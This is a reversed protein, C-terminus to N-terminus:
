GMMRRRVPSRGRRSLAPKMLIYFEPTPHSWRSDCSMSLASTGTGDYAVDFLREKGSSPGEENGKGEWPIGIQETVNQLAKIRLYAPNPVLRIRPVPDSPSPSHRRGKGKRTLQQRFPSKIDLASRCTAGRAIAHKQQACRQFPSPQPGIQPQFVTSYPLPFPLITRARTTIRSRDTLPISPPEFSTCLTAAVAFPKLEAPETFHRVDSPRARYGSPLLMAKASACHLRETPPLETSLGVSHRSGAVINVSNMYSRQFGKALQVVHCLQRMLSGREATKGNESGGSPLLLKPRPGHLPAEELPVPVLTSFGPRCLAPRPSVTNSASVIFSEDKFGLKSRPSSPPVTIHTTVSARSSGSTFSFWSNRSSRGSDSSTTLQSSDPSTCAGCSDDITGSSTFLISRDNDRRPPLLRLNERERQRRRGVSSYEVATLLVSLPNQRKQSPSMHSPRNDSSNSRSSQMAMNEEASLPFLSGDMTKLVERFTIFHDFTPPGDMHSCSSDRSSRPSRPRSRAAKSHPTPTFSSKRCPMPLSDYLLSDPSENQRMPPQSAPLSAYSIPPPRSTRRCHAAIFAAHAQEKQREAEERRREDEEQQLLWAQMKKERVRQQADDWKKGITYEWQNRRSKKQREQERSLRDLERRQIEEIQRRDEEDKLLCGNPLFCEDFDEPRVTALRLDDSSTVHIGKLKLYIIRANDM